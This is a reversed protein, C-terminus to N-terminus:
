YGRAALYQDLAVAVVDGPVDIRNHFVFTRLRDDLELDVPVSLHLPTRTVKRRDLIDAPHPVTHPRGSGPRETWPLERVAPYQPPAAHPAPARGQERVAPSGGMQMPDAARNAWSPDPQQRYHPYHQAPDPQGYWDGPQTPSPGGQPGQYPDALHQPGAAQEPVQRDEEQVQRVGPDEAPATPPTALYEDADVLPRSPPAASDGTYSDLTRRKGAANGRAPEPKGATKGNDQAPM